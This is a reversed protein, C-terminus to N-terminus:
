AFPRIPGWGVITKDTKTIIAQTESVIRRTSELCESDWARAVRMVSILDRTSRVLEEARKVAIEEDIM